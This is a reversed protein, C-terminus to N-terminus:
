AISTSAVRSERMGGRCVSALCLCVALWVLCVVRNPLALASSWCCSRCLIWGVWGGDDVVAASSMIMVGRGEGLILVSGCWPRGHRAPKERSCVGGPAGGGEEDSMEVDPQVVPWEATDGVSWGTHCLCSMILRLSDGSRSSGTTNISGVRRMLQGGGRSGNRGDGRRQLRLVELELWQGGM